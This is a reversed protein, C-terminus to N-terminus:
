GPFQEVLRPAFLVSSPPAFPPQLRDEHCVRRRPWLSKLLTRAQPIHSGVYCARRSITVEMLQFAFAEVSQTLRKDSSRFWDMDVSILNTYTTTPSSFCTPVCSGARAADRSRKAVPTRSHNCRHAYGHLSRSPTMQTSETVCM